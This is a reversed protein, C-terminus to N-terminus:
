KLNVVQDHQAQRLMVSTSAHLRGFSSEHQAQRLML